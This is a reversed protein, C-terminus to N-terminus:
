MAIPLCCGHSLGLVQELGAWGPRPVQVYLQRRGSNQLHPELCTCLAIWHGLPKVTLFTM